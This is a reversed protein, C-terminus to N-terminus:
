RRSRERGPCPLSTSTSCSAATTRRMKVSYAWPREGRAIASPRLASSMRGGRPLPQCAEAILPLRTRGSRYGLSRARRRAGPRSGPKLACPGPVGAPPHRARIRFFLPDRCRHRMQANTSASSNALTCAILPARPLSRGSCCRRGLCRSAPKNRQPQQPEAMTALLRAWAPRRM